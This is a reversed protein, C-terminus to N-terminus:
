APSVAEFSESVRFLVTKRAKLGFGQCVTMVHLAGLSVGTFRGSISSLTDDVMPAAPPPWLFAAAM